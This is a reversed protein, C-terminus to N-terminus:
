AVMVAASYSSVSSSSALIDNIKKELYRALSYVYSPEEETKLTYEKGCISVKVKNLM